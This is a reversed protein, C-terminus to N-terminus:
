DFFVLFDPFLRGNRRTVYVEGGTLLLCSHSHHVRLRLLCFEVVNWGVGVVVGHMRAITLCKYLFLPQSVTVPVQRVPTTAIMRKLPRGGTTWTTTRARRFYDIPPHAPPSIHYFVPAFISNVFKVSKETLLFSEGNSIICGVYYNVGSGTVSQVNVCTKLTITLSLWVTHHMSCLMPYRLVFGFLTSLSLAHFALTLLMSVVTLM